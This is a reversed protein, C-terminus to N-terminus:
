RLKILIEWFQFSGSRFAAEFTKANGGTEELEQYLTDSFNHHYDGLFKLIDTFKPSNLLSINTYGM